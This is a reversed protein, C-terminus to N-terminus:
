GVGYGKKVRELDSNREGAAEADTEAFCVVHVQVGRKWPKERREACSQM